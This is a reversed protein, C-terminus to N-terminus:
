FPNLIAIHPKFDVIQIKFMRKKDFITFISSLHTFNIKQQTKAKNLSRIKKQGKGQESDPFGFTGVAIERVL